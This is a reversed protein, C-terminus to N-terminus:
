GPPQGRDVASLGMRGRVVSWGYRAARGLRRLYLLPWLGGPAPGYRWRLYAPSPFAKELPYRLRRAWGPQTLWALLARVTHNDKRAVAWHHVTREARTPRLAAVQQLVPAPVLEPWLQALHAVVGQVPLVLRWAAAREVVGQWDFGSGAQLIVWAMEYYRFLADDYEHHLALHGCAYVLHDEPGLISAETGALRVRQSRAFFPDAPMRGFFFPTDLLHWHLAIAFVQGFAGADQPLQFPRGNYFRRNMGPWPEPTARYGLEQVVQEAREADRPPVLLDIDAYTRQGYDGGYVTPIAAWGKLAISPIGAQGLAALVTRVEELCRDGWLLASHYERRLRNQLAQPWLGPQELGLRYFVGMLRHRFLLAEVVDWDLDQARPPLPRDPLLRHTLCALLFAEERPM